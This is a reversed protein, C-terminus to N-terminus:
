YSTVSIDDNTDDMTDPGASWIRYGSRNTQSDIAREYNYANGWPDSPIAKQLYPGRWKQQLNGDSPAIRLSELGSENSPYQGVHMLYVNLPLEFMQLQTEATAKKSEAREMAVRDFNAREIAERRVDDQHTKWYYYAGGGVGCLVLMLLAMASIGVVIFRVNVKGGGSCIQPQIEQIRGDHQEVQLQEIQTGCDSCNAPKADAAIWLPYVKGCSDCSIKNSM